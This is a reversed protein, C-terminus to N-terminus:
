STSYPSSYPDQAPVASKQAYPQNTSWTSDGTSSSKTTTTSGSTTTDPSSSTSSGSTTTDPSSTTNSGSTTTDPSTTTSSPQTSTSSPPPPPPPQGAPASTPDSSRPGIPDSITEGRLMYALAPLATGNPAGGAYRVLYTGVTLYVNGSVTQGNLAVLTFLANNNSDYITMRVGAADAPNGTSASLVFHFLANTNVTLSNALQPTTQALTGSSFTQLQIAQPTFDAGVFYNGTNRPGSPNQASVKLYYGAGAVPNAIQVVMMGSDNVLITGPVVNQNNDYVAVNPLLGNHGLGWVMVQMVNSQGAPPAPATIHFYEVEGARAITARYAYDFHGDTKSLENGLLLATLPTSNLPLDNTLGTTVDHVLGVTTTTVLNVLPLTQVQLHYGGVGFVNSAASEVKVYYTALPLLGGVTVGLDGNLPDTAAASALTQGWGNYVTLRAQLTSYGSTQLWVQFSGLQTTTFKYVNSDALTGIDGDTTVALSGNSQLALPLPQATAFTNNSHATRANYLYLLNSVDGSTLGTKPVTFNEYM